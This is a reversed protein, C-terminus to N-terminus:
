KNAKLFAVLDALDQKTLQQDLGAPMISVSGPKIEDINDRAIRAEETANLTIVVEDPSDKKLIGQVTRGDKTTLKVPEYSRVFSASPFVISELLDRETRLSGVKTLDPGVTGGVYGIKHCTACVAKQSQFVVQGRRVDGAPLEKLLSELKATEGARDAAFAAYLPKAAEQVKPGYKDLIPKVQELRVAPRVKPDELAKVLALGVADDKSKEFAPLLRALDIPTTTTLSEAVSLLLKSTVKSRLIADVALSRELPSEDKNLKSLCLLPRSTPYEDASFLDIKGPPTTACMLLKLEDSLSTVDSGAMLFLSKSLLKWTDENVPVARMALCIDKLLGPYASHAAAMGFAWEVPMEKLGSKAIVGLLLKKTRESSGTALESGILTQAATSKVYKVLHTILENREEAKMMDAYKLHITLKAALQEGWDAHKGAVWWATDRLEPEKSDLEKLVDEVTLIKGPMADLAAITSKRVLASPHKLGERTAKADGIEILAYTLSHDLIRDNKDNALLDLITPICKPDGIRGLAEAAARRIAQNGTWLLAILDDVAAKDRWLSVCHCGTIQLDARAKPNLLLRAAARAKPHDVVALAWVAERWADPTYEKANVMAALASIGKEGRSILTDAARRRVAPRSDDLWFTLDGTDVNDWDLLLGRPDRQKHSGDKTVRYIGGLVDTKVLQSSPCCLKYWGGTDIVLLSGDADELVDTPHFDLDDSSVFPQDKTFFTAGDPVLVHRSVTRLNFQCCFLNFRFDDGLQNSELRHLGAPAAPGLHTLVPM